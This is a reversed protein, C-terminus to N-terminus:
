LETFTSASVVAWRSQHREHLLSPRSHAACAISTDEWSTGLDQGGDAVSLLGSRRCFALNKTRRQSKKLAPWRQQQWQAIVTENRQNARERPQQPSWGLAHLLKRVHDPHYRVGFMSAIVVAVRKATWRNGRFGFAESGQKLLVPLQERQEETVRPTPGAPPHSALGELGQERGRKMWQSVAGETV